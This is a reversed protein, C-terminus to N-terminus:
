SKYKAIISKIKNPWDGWKERCIKTSKPRPWIIKISQEVYIRIKDQLELYITRSLLFLQNLNNARDSEGRSNFTKEIWKKYFKMWDRYKSALFSLKIKM